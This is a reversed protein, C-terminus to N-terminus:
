DSGFDIERERKKKKKKKKKVEEEEERHSASKAEKHRASRDPAAVSVRDNPRPRDTPSESPRRVSSPSREKEAIGAPSRRSFHSRDVSVFFAIILDTTSRFSM